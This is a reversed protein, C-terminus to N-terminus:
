ACSVAASRSPASAPGCARPRSRAGPPISCRLRRRPLAIPSEASWPAARPGRGGDGPGDVAATKGVLGYRLAAELPRAARRSRARHDLAVRVRHGLRPRAAPGSRVALTGAGSAHDYGAHCAVDALDPHRHARAADGLPAIGAQRWQDQDEVFSADSWRVVCRSSTRARPARGGHRRVRQAAALGERHRAPRREALSRVGDRRRRVRARRAARRVWPPLTFRRATSAPRTRTRCSRRRRRRSRCASTRTTRGDSGRCRGAARCTSRSSAASTSTRDAFRPPRRRRGRSSGSAGLTRRAVRASRGAPSRTRRRRSRDSHRARAAERRRDARAGAVPRARRAADHAGDRAGCRAPRPRRRSRTSTSAPASSAPPSSARCAAARAVAHRDRRAARAQPWDGGDFPRQHIWLMYPTEADFLATSGSSCTSSSRPSGTAAPTTSRRCTPCRSTPRSGCPTRSSRRRRCGRAGARRRRRRAPRGPEGLRTGRELERLPLEPVFDFAYIQGHPHAITAGVEAGRNEFVLVYDVDTARASRPPASRGSTSSRARAPSASRGSRRTTSRRTSCSRAATTRCRRGATARVLPRRLREPAELGGPCFPCGTTPCTRGTRARTSSSTRVGRTSTRRLDDALEASAATMADAASGTARM